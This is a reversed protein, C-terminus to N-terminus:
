VGVMSTWNWQGLNLWDGLEIRGDPSWLQGELDINGGLLVLSQPPRVRLGKRSRNTISQFLVQKFTFASPNARSLKSANPDSASFIGQDLFQIADATTTVFSGDTDLSADPEFTVGIPNLLFLDPQSEGSTAITGSIESRNSGTVRVFINRINGSLNVFNVTQGESVNLQEFSHFLNIGEVTGGTVIISSAESNVVSNTPLTEDPIIGQRTSPPNTAYENAMM